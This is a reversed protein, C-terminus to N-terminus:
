EGTQGETSITPGEAEDDYAEPAWPSLGEEAGSSGEPDAVREAPEGSDKLEPDTRPPERETTPEADGGSGRSSAGGGEHRSGEALPDEGSPESGEYVEGTM